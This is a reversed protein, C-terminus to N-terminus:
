LRAFWASLPGLTLEGGTVKAEGCGWGTATTGLVLGYRFAAEGRSMNFVCLVRESEHARVFALVPGPADVFEMEGLRLAVSQKRASL